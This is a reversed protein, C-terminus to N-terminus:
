INSNLCARLARATGILDDMPAGRGGTFHEDTESLGASFRGTHILRIHIAVLANARAGPM